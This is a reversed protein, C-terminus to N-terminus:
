WRCRATCHFQRWAWICVGLLFRLVKKWLPKSEVTAGLVAVGAVSRCAGGPKGQTMRENSKLMVSVRIENYVV